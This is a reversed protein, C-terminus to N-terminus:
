LSHDREEESLFSNSILESITSHKRQLLIMGQDDLIDERPIYEGEYNQTLLAGLATSATRPNLVFLLNHKKSIVAM